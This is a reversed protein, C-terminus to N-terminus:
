KKRRKTAGIGILGLGMLAFTAPEPISISDGKIERGLKTQIVGGFDEFTNANLYFGDPTGSVLDQLFTVDIGGIGLANVTIGNSRALDAAALAASRPTEGSDCNTDVGGGYTGGDCVTPRGDTSIDIVMKGSDISNDMLSNMAALLAGETNTMGSLPYTSDGYTHGWSEKQDMETANFLNGFSTAESNNTITVWNTQAVVGTSFQFAKVVLSDYSSGLIYDDYFSGSSFANKYGDLQLGYQIESMSGSSDIVLALELPTASATGSFVGGLTLAFGASVVLNKLSNKKYNM